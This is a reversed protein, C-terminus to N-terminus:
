REKQITIPYKLLLGQAQSHLDAIPRSKSGGDITHKIFSVVYGMGACSMTLLDMGETSDEVINDKFYMNDFTKYFLLEDPVHIKHLSGLKWKGCRIIQAGTFIMSIVNAPASLDDEISVNRDTIGLLIVNKWHRSEWLVLCQVMMKDDIPVGISHHILNIKRTQGFNM